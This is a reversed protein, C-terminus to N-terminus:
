GGYPTRTLVFTAVDLQEVDGDPGRLVQLTEGTFYGDCGRYSGDDCREFRTPRDSSPSDLVLVGARLSLAFPTNGWYWPGLLEAHEGAGANPLWQAPPSPEREVVLAVLDAALQLGDLGRTANALAVAGVKRQPDIFAGALFGPMSGTHGRLSRSAGRVLRLGLGYSDGGEAAPDASAPLCMEELTDPALLAPAPEALFAVWTALDPVTSWLQGAPAMAATDHAPEDTLTEAYPHVSFGDAAGEQPDYSTRAMGCPQLLREEVVQRWPHQRLHAVLRGLLAYSVNSYHYQRGPPLVGAQGSLEGALQDWSRGPSREWWPGPPEAAVGGSHALLSRISREGYPADPLHASLPDALDLRGEDRLQLVLVATMTKTISGIRYQTGADPREEANRRPRSGRTGTWVLRGDRVVGAVVSPLRGRSQEVALRHELLIATSDLVKPQDGPATV